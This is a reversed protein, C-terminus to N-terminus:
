QVYGTTEVKYEWDCSEEVDDKARLEALQRDQQAYAIKMQAELDAWKGYKNLPDTLESLIVYKSDPHRARGRRQIFSKVSDPHDFCIVLNCSQVDIGEELVSTAVVVDNKGKRFEAFAQQQATNDAMDALSRQVPNNMGVFTSFHYQALEPLSQLLAKLAWATARRKVFIICALGERYENALFKALVLAKHSLQEPSTTEQSLQTNPSWIQQLSNHLHLKEDAAVTFLSEQQKHLAIDFRSICATIYCDVAWPGLCENLHVAQSQLAKLQNLVPTRGKDVVKQLKHRGELSEDNRLRLYTPDTFINYDMVTTNFARLLLSTRSPALASDYTLQQMSPLHVYHRYEELNITPVRCIAQLNEELEDIISADDRMIPSATLGLVHPLSVGPDKSHRLPHYFTRMIVNAPDKNVCHHAEDFVLLSIDNISVFAHFLADLLVRPTSIVGNQGSLAADWVAQSSWFQVSDLGTILKFSYSTLQSSLFAHQQQALVVSPTM